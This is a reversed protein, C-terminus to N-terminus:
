VAVTSSMPSRHRLHWCGATSPRVARCVVEQKDTKDPWSKTAYAENCSERQPVLLTVIDRTLFTDPDPLETAGSTLIAEAAAKREPFSRSSWKGALELVSLPSYFLTDNPGRITGLTLSGSGLNYFVNTDLILNPMTGVVRLIWRRQVVSNITDRQTEASLYNASGSQTMPISQGGRTRGTRTVFRWYHPCSGKISTNNVKKYRNPM